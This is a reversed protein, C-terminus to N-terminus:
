HAVPLAFQMQTSDHQQLTAAGALYLFSSLMSVWAYACAVCSNFAICWLYQRCCEQTTELTRTLVAAMLYKQQSCSCKTASQLQMMGKM